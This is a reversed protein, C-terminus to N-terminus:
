LMSRLIKYEEITIEGKALRLKLIALSDARDAISNGGRRASLANWILIGLVVLLVLGWLSHGLMWGGAWPWTGCNWM